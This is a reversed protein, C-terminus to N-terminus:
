VTWRKAVHIHIIMELTNQFYDNEIYGVSM